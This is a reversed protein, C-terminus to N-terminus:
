RESEAPLQDGHRAGRHELAVGELRAQREVAEDYSRRLGQDPLWTSQPRTMARVLHRWAAEEVLARCAALAAGLAAGNETEFREVECGFVDAFVQMLAGSAAAGGTVRLKRFPRLSLSHRSMAMAQGELVARCHAGADDTPFDESYVFGSGITRPVIEPDLWPLLVARDAPKSSAVAQEFGSWDLAFLDRVYERALSGNRFCLLGLDHGTPAVFLHGGQLPPLAEGLRSLTDSTGLSLLADGDALLGVGLASAPNDGTGALVRADAAIGHRSSWYPAVDGVVHGPAVLEPLREGLDKATARTARESWRRERLHFLNTGAADGWDLPAIRGALLGTVFSSVLAVHRTRQWGAGDENAYRRIQAATFREYIDSGTLAAAAQAGGLAARIEECEVTTSSDTWIPAVERALMPLLQDALPAAPDLHALGSAAEANLYVSGHQQGSVSLAGVRGLDIADSLEAFLLDLADAWALPPALGLRPDDRPLQGASTGWRELSDFAVSRELLIRSSGVDAGIELVLASLSQTSSDLGLALPSEM